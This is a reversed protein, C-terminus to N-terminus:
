PMLPDRRFSRGTGFLACTTTKELTARRSSTTTCRPTSCVSSSSQMLMETSCRFPSSCVQTELSGLYSELDDLSDKWFEGVAFMKPKGSEKRTHKVFDAIFGAEIHQSPIHAQHERHIEAVMVKVADFRFGAADTEKIVWAGWNLTDEKAEPHSYDIDAGVVGFM